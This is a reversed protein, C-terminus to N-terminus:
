NKELQWRAQSRVWNFRPLWDGDALQRYLKRAETTKGSQRLNQAREWLIGADTPEAEFAAAYARDALDLEGTRSLTGALAVWPGSENPRRAVPTTLYDWVLEREGLTRLIRGAIECAGDAEPDLARWRDATRVVKSTFDAPPRM